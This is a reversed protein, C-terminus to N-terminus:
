TRTTGRVLMMPPLFIAFFKGVRPQLAASADCDNLREFTRFTAGMSSTVDKHRKLAQLLRESPASGADSIPPRLTLTLTFGPFPLPPPPADAVVEGEVGVAVVTM